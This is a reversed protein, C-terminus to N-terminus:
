PIKGEVIFEPTNVTIVADRLPWRDIQWVTQMTYRGPDLNCPEGLWWELFVTEPLAAGARYTFPGASGDCAVVLTDARRVIVSYSGLFDRKIERVVALEPEKGYPTDYVYVSEVSMHLSTPVLYSIGAWAGWAIGIASITNIARDVMM